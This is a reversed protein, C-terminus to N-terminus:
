VEASVSFYVLVVAADIMGRWVTDIVLHDGRSNDYHVRKKEVVVRREDGTCIMNQSVVTACKGAVVM